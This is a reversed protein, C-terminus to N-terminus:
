QQSQVYKMVKEVAEITSKQLGWQIHKSCIEIPFRGLHWHSEKNCKLYYKSKRFGTVIDRFTPIYAFLITYGSPVTKHRPNSIGLKM